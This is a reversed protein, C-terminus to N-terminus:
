EELDVKQFILMYNNSPMNLVEKLQLSAENQAVTVIDNIERVGWSADRIRLM